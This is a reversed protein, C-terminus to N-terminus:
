RPVTPSRAARCLLHLLLLLDPALLGLMPVKASLVPWVILLFSAVAPSWSLAMLLDGDYNPHRVIRYFGGLM